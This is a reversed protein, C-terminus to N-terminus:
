EFPHKLDYDPLQVFAADGFALIALFIPSLFILGVAFGTGKGFSKALRISEVVSFLLVIVYGVVPIMSAFPVLFFLGNGFIKECLVYLNYFPILCKWPEIGMKKFLFWNILIAIVAVVLIGASMACFMGSLLTDYSSEYM